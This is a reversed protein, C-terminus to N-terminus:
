SALEPAPNTLRALYSTRPRTGLSALLDYNLPDAKQGSLRSQADRLDGFVIAEAPCAAQCATVVEGDRIRRGEKKAAIRAASIRQVCYTCKEMVGRERVSVEPNRLMKLSETKLDAYQFFNFRRVKYPCNNSCYRTGVCRNYVMENLGEQSHVTAGVPCVLECPANECHMCPVPQHLMRPPHEEVYRDVRLWHMERGRLVEQKGVVPSNNEAQCAIVCASCGICSNLNVTMGWAYEGPEWRPYLSEEAAPGPETQRAFDPRAKFQALTAARVHRRGEMSHHGQTAALARRGSRKALELGSGGWPEAGQRLAYADVGLGAATKGGARRGYGLHLTVSREAQNALVWAPAELLRGRFRLELLDGNEVELTRATLPSILAANDWTLTTQPKPLEQLWGNNAHRGDLVTPDPRLLLEYGAQSVPELREALTRRPEVRQPSYRTGAVVGESLSELWFREFSPRHRWRARLLEYGSRPNEDFLASLLESASKGEYLPAILPQCLTVTGDSARLDGWSELPHALPLHWHSIAATEDAYHGAHVRFPLRRYLGPFDLDAPAAYAPNCDVTVLASVRGAGMDRALTGMSRAHSEPRFDPPPLYEVTSGANGLAHNVAHALAHVMPPQFEGVALLGRGRSRKLDAAAAAAWRRAPEELPLRACRAGCAWAIQRAMAEIQLQSAPLHHDAMSGTISPTGEAVYLRSMPQGREPRRRSAFERAYALRGPGSGLFDSDLSVIIEAERLRYRPLLRRGFALLSGEQPADSAVPEYQHWRAGPYRKLIRSLQDGLSPSIVAGTLIRLGEGNRLGSLVRTWAAAFTQWHSPQGAELVVQSRDPDYLNLIEAQTFIDAAGLSDPHRPNGDIRTPRGMHSTVLVGCASRGQALATAFSLPKGAVLNEPEQGYPIIKELPQRCASLLALALSAGSWKLFDRRSLDTPWGEPWEDITLPPM